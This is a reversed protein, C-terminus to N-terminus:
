KRIIKKIMLIWMPMNIIIGAVTTAVGIIVGSLGLYVSIGSIVLSIILLTNKLSFVHICIYRRVDMTRYILVIFYAICTAIAAGLEHWKPILILNLGLNIVAGCSASFLFAKSDKHVTYQSSLFTAMVLFCTGVILPPTIFWAGYYSEEVYIKLIPRTLLLLISGAVAVFGLLGSFVRNNYEEKDASEEERIASYNWAQNFITSVTSILSPLKNAVAYIGTSSVGVISTLMVRNSSDMIWWMFSNPILVISYKLMNMILKSDLKFHKIVKIVNGAVFAYISTIGNSLIYALLFGKIGYDLVVLFIINLLAISLTHIINGITFKLLLEKGRLNYLLIISCGSSWFYFCAQLAVDALPEYLRIIPYIGVSLLSLVAIFLVGTSMISTQDADKDLSFRMVAENINCILIPVIFTGLSIVLDVTGYEEKLLVNTYLPVLFFSILKTGVNGLAFVLTNKVLYEIRKNTITKNDNM